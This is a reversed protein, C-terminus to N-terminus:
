ALSYPCSWTQLALRPHHALSGFPIIGHPLNITKRKTTEGSIKTQALQVNFLFISACHIQTILQTCGFILCYFTSSFSLSMPFHLTPYLGLNPANGIYPSLLNQGQMQPSGVLTQPTIEKKLHGSYPKKKFYFNPDMYTILILFFDRCISGNMILKM